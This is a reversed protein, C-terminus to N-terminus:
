GNTESHLTMNDEPIEEVGSETETDKSSQITIAMAQEPQSPLKGKQHEQLQEAIQGVQAEVRNMSAELLDLRKDHREHNDMNFQIFTNLTEELTSKWPQENNSMPNPMNNQIPAQTNNKWSFNPHSRWGTNYTNVYLDFRPRSQNANLYNVQESKYLSQPCM